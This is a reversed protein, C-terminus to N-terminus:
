YSRPNFKGANRLFISRNTWGSLPNVRLDQLDCAGSHCAHKPRHIAKNRRTITIQCHRENKFRQAPATLVAYPDKTQTTGMPQSYSFFM